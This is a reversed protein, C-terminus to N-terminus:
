GAMRYRSSRMSISTRKPSRAAPAEVGDHKLLQTLAEEAGDRDDLDLRVSARAAIAHEHGPVVALARDIHQEALKICRKRGFLMAAEVHADAVLPEAQLREREVVWIADLAACLGDDVWRTYQRYFKAKLLLAAPRSSREDQEFLHRVIGAAEGSRELGLLCRARRVLSLPDDGGSEDLQTIAEAYRFERILQGVNTSDNPLTM